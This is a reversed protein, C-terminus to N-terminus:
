RPSAPSISDIAVTDKNMEGTVTVLLRSKKDTQRVFDALKALKANGSPDLKFTHGDSDVLVFSKTRPKPRCALIEFGRDQNAYFSPDFPNINAEESTYCNSDVLYGTWKEAFASVSGIWLLTILLLANRGM